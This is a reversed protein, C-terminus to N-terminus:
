RAPPGALESREGDLQTRIRLKSDAHLTLRPKEDGYLLSAALRDIDVAGDGQALRYDAKLRMPAEVPAQLTRVLIPQKSLEQLDADIHGDTLLTGDPAAPLTIQGAGSVLKIKRSTVLLDRYDIRTAEQDFRVNPMLRIGLDDLLADQGTSLTVHRIDVPRSSTLTAVGKGDAAVTLEARAVMGQLTLEPLFTSFWKLDIDSFKLSALEGTTEGRLRFAHATEVILPHLLHLQLLETKKDLSVTADFKEARLLGEQQLLSAQYQYAM